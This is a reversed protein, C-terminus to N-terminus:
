TSAARSRSRRASCGSRRAPTTASPRSSWGSRAAPTPSRSAPTARRSRRWSRAASRSRTPSGTCCRRAIAPRSRAGPRSPASPGSSRPTPRRRRRRPPGRGDGARDRARDGRDRGQEGRASSIPDTCPMLPSSCPLQEWARRARRSAPCARARRDGCPPRPRARDVGDDGGEGVHLAPQEALPDLDLVEEVLHDLVPDLAAVVQEREVHLHLRDGAVLHGVPLVAVAVEPDDGVHRRQAPDGPEVARRQHEAVDDVVVARGTTAEGRWTRIAATRARRALHAVRRM